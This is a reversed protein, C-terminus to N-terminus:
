DITLQEVTGWAGDVVVLVLQDSTINLANDDKDTDTTPDTEGPQEDSGETSTSLYKTGLSYLVNPELSIDAGGNLPWSELVNGEADVIEVTLKVPSTPLVYTGDLQSFDLKEVGQIENGNWIVGDNGQSTLDISLLVGDTVAESTSGTGDALAVSTNIESTTTLRLAATPVGNLEIPIGQLYLMIGSVSRTITIPVRAYEGATLGKEASGSFIPTALLPDTLTAAFAEFATASSPAAIAYPSDDEEGVAIFKYNGDLTSGTVTYTNGATGNLEWSSLNFVQDYLFEGPTASEKFVYIDAKTVASQSEAGYINGGRTANAGDTSVEFVLAGPIVVPDPEDKACSGLLLAFSAAILVSKKM